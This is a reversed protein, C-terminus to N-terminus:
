EQILPIFSEPDIQGEEDVVFFFANGETDYFYYSDETPPEEVKVPEYGGLVDARYNVSNPNNLQFFQKEEFEYGLDLLQDKVSDAKQIAVIQNKLVSVNFVKQFDGFVWWYIVLYGIIAAILTLAIASIVQIYIKHHPASM